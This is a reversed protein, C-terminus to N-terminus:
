GRTFIWEDANSLNANFYYGESDFLKMQEPDKLRNRIIYSAMMGRARKTYSQVIRYAGNKYDRFGPTIVRVKLQERDISKYYEHSALNVLVPNSVSKLDDNIKETIKMSWFDYISRFQDIKLKTAMELRYPRILDMPRLVGYLGSLIRLYKQAYELDKRTFSKADLGLYADGVFAYVAQKANHLSFEPEWNQIREFCIEALDEKVNMLRMIEKKSLKKLRKMIQISEDPFFPLTHEKLGPVEKFNLRKSPSLVILM